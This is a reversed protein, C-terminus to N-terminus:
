ERLGVLDLSLGPMDSPAFIAVNKGGKISDWADGAPDLKFYFFNPRLPLSSPPDHTFSLSVGDLALEVIKNIQSRSAVKLKIPLDRLLRDKELDASAGLYLMSSADLLRPDEFRGVYISDEQRELEIRVARTEHRIMLLDGLIAHLEKFAAGPAAHDYHPLAKPSHLPSFSCLEGALVALGRYAEEPHVRRHGLWHSLRPIARNVALLTGFSTLDSVSFDAVGGRVRRKGALEDSKTILM